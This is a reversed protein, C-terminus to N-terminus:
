DYMFIHSDVSIYDRDYFDTSKWVNDDINKQEDKIFNIEVNKIFEKVMNM